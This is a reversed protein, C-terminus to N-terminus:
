LFFNNFFCNYDGENVSGNSGPNGADDAVDAPLNNPADLFFTNFFCNYDGENVAGNGDRYVVGGVTVTPMPDGADTAIDAPNKPLEVNSATLPGLTGTRRQSVNVTGGFRPPLPSDFYFTNMRGWRLTNAILGAPPAPPAFVTATKAADYAMTWTTDFDPTNADSPPTFPNVASHYGPDAQRPQAMGFNSAAAFAPMPVEFTAFERDVDLNFVAYEYRFGGGALKVVRSSVYAQGEDTPGFAAQRDGWDLMAPGYTHPSDYVFNSATVGTAVTSETMGVTRFRRYAINNFKYKDGNIVYYGEVFFNGTNPALASPKIADVPFNNLKWAQTTGTYTYNHGGNPNVISADRYTATADRNKTNHWSGAMTWGVTGPDSATGAPAHPNIESRPGVDDAAVNLGAGYTDSCNAGLGNNSPGSCSGVGCAASGIPTTGAVGTITNLANSQSQGTSAAYWGHKVWATGLQELRGAANLRYTNIAIYPHRSGRADNAPLDSDWAAYWEPVPYEYFTGSITSGSNNPRTNCSVTTASMVVNNTPRGASSNTWIGMNGGPGVNTGSSVGTGAAIASISVDIGALTDPARTSGFNTNAVSHSGSYILGATTFLFLALPISKKM